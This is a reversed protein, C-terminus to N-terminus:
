FLHKTFIFIMAQIKTYLYKHDLPANMNESKESDFGQNDDLGINLVHIFNCTNLVIHDDYKLSMFPELEPYSHSATLSTHVTLGHRLCTNGSFYRSADTWM